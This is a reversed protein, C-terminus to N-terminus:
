PNNILEGNFELMKRREKDKYASVIHPPLSGYNGKDGELLEDWLSRRCRIDVHKSVSPQLEFFGYLGGELSPILQRLGGQRKLDRKMIKEGFEKVPIYKGYVFLKRRRPKQSGQETDVYEDHEYVFKCLLYRFRSEPSHVSQQIKNVFPDPPKNPDYFDRTMRATSAKYEENESM